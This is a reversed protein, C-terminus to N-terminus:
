YVPINDDNLEQVEWNSPIELNEDKLEDPKFLIGKNKVGYLWKSIASTNNNIFNIKL